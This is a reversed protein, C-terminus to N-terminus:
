SDDRFRKKFDIIFDVLEKSKSLNFCFNHFKVLLVELIPNNADLKVYTNMFTKSGIISDNVFEGFDDYLLELQSEKEDSREKTTVPSYEVDEFAPYMGATEALWESLAIDDSDKDLVLPNNSVTVIDTVTNPVSDGASGIAKKCIMELTSTAYQAAMNSNNSVKDFILTHPNDECFPIDIKRSSPVCYWTNMFGCDKRYDTNTLNANFNTLNSSCFPFIAHLAADSCTQYSLRKENLMTNMSIRDRMMIGKYFYFEEFKEGKQLKVKSAKLFGQKNSLSVVGTLLHGSQFFRGFRWYVRKGVNYNKNFYDKGYESLKHFYDFSKQGQATYGQNYMGTHHKNFDGHLSAVRNLQTRGSIVGDVVKILTNNSFTYIVGKGGSIIDLPERMSSIYMGEEGYWYFLPREEEDGAAGKYVWMTNKNINDCFLFAGYGKYKQFVKCNGEKFIIAGIAQSDVNYNKYDLGVEACLETCNTVTGNQALWMKNKKEKYEFPHCNDATDSGVTSKRTHIIVNRWTKSTPIDETQLLNSILPLSGKWGKVVKGNAFIGCSDKGRSENFLAIIKIKDM